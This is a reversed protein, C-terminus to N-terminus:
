KRYGAVVNLSAKRAMSLETEKEARSKPLSMGTSGADWIHSLFYKDGYRNFWIKPNENNTTTSAPTTVVLVSEGGDARRVLAVNVAAHNVTYTGAPLINKGVQFAFPTSFEVKSSGQAYVSVSALLTAMLIGAFRTKM